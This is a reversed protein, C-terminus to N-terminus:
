LFPSCLRGYGECIRTWTGRKMWDAPLVRETHSLDENFVAILRQVTPVDYIIAILEFNLRFSRVDLNASGVTAFKEDVVMTKTHIMGPLYEYIQVGARLLQDYVARGAHFTVRHNSKRPVLLRVDVGRLAATELAYLMARDPVFYPTTIWVRERAGVIAAFYVRAIAEQTEDPGSGVVQVTSDGAKHVDPFFAAHVLNHRTAFYWDEVFIGQLESVAPGEIQLSMDRWGTFEDGINIGGTFGVHGDVIMLKRHNRMNLSWARTIPKLPFFPEVHGGAARLPAIFKKSLSWSGIADYLVRVRVGRGVAAILADRFRTGTVDPRIIYYELHVHDKARAIADLAAEYTREAGLLVGIRNGHALSFGGVRSALRMVGRLEDPQDQLLKDFNIEMSVRSLGLIQERVVQKASVEQRVQRRIRDRGLFWFFFLGVVPLFILVMIWAVTSAPEKRRVLVLPIFCLALISLATAVAAAIPHVDSFFSPM